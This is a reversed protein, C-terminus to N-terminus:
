NGNQRPLVPNKKEYLRDWLEQYENLEDESFQDSVDQGCHACNWETREWEGDEIQHESDMVLRAGDFSYTHTWTGSTSDIDTFEIKAGCCKTLYKEFYDNYCTAESDNNPSCHVTTMDVFQSLDLPPPFHERFAKVMCDYVTECDKSAPFGVGIWNSGYLEGVSKWVEQAKNNKLLPHDAPLNNFYDLLEGLLSLIKTDADSYSM